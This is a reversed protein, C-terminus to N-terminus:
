AVKSQYVDFASGASRGELSYCVPEFAENWAGRGMRKFSLRARVEGFCIDKVPVGPKM